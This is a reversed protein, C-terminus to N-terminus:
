SPQTHASCPRAAPRATGPAGPNGPYLFPCEATCAMYHTTDDTRFVAHQQQADRDQAIKNGHQSKEREREREKERERRERGRARERERNREREGGGREGREKNRERERQEANATRPRPGQLVAVVRYADLLFM